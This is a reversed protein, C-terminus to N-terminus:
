KNPILDQPMQISFRALFLILFPNEEEAGAAGAGLTERRLPAPTGRSGQAPGAPDRRARPPAGPSRAGRATPVPLPLPLPM